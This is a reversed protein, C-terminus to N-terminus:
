RRALAFVQKKFKDLVGNLDPAIKFLYIPPIFLLIFALSRTFADLFINSSQPIFYVVLYSIAAIALALASKLTYPQFGFKKYIFIFRIVNYITLSLVFSVALGILGFYQILFFNLPISLITYIINTYFDFKWYNSTGIISSNIGTGLDLVKALGMIFVIAEIQAYSKGLFKVVDHVNLIILGFLGLAIVLLNVVSKKYINEITKKDKNKWAEALIPISISNISRQPVEMVAVFYTAIAFVGTDALGRLGFILITDNTKSLVNLFQAGFIFLGFSIIRGKLRRTVSSVATISFRWSTKRILVWLLIVAPVFYLVSFFNIFANLSIIKFAYLLILLTTIIRVTTERLFNSVVTKKVSWAFAELWSFM